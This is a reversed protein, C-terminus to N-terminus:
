KDKFIFWFSVSKSFARGEIVGITCNRFVIAKVDFTNFANAKIREIKTGEFRIENIVGEMPWLDKVTSDTVIIRSTSKARALAGEQFRLDTVRQIQGIFNTDSFADQLVLLSKVDTVNLQLERNFAMSGLIVNECKEIIIQPFRAWNGEMASPSLEFHEGGTVQLRNLHNNHFFGSQFTLRTSPSLHIEFIKTTRPLFQAAGLVQYQHPFFLLTTSIQFLFFLTSFKM